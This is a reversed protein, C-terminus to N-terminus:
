NATSREKQNVLHGHKFRQYSDKDFRYRKDSCLQIVGADILRQFSSKATLSRTQLIYNRTFLTPAKSCVEAYFLDLDRNLKDVRSLITGISIQM